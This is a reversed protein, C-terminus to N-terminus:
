AILWVAWVTVLCDAPSVDYKVALPYEILIRSNDARAEGATLPAVKLTTDMRNAARAIAARDPANTWLDALAAIATPLWTVTWKM